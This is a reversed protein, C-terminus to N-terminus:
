STHLCQHARAIAFPLYSWATLDASVPDLPDIGVDDDDDDAFAVVDETLAVVVVDDLGEAVVVAPAPSQAPMDAHADLMMTRGTDREM